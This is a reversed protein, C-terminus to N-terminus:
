ARCSSCCTPVGCVLGIFDPGDRVPCDATMIRLSQQRLACIGDDVRGQMDNGALTFQELATLQALSSPVDGTLANDNLLIETLGTLSGLAGPIQGSFANNDLRL